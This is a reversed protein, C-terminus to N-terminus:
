KKKFWNGIRTIFGTKEKKSNHISTIKWEKNEKVLVTTSYSLRCASLDRQWEDLKATEAHVVAMDNNIFRINKIDIYLHENNKMEKQLNKYDAKKSHVKKVHIGQPNVFDSNNTFYANFADTDKAAWANKLNEFLQRIKREDAPQIFETLTIAYTSYNGHTQPIAVNM